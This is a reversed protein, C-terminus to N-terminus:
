GMPTGVVNTDGNHHCTTGTPQWLKGDCVLPTGLSDQALMGKQTCKFGQILFQDDEAFAPQVILLALLATLMKMYKEKITKIHMLM